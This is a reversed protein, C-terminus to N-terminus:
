GSCAEDADGLRDVDIGATVPDDPAFGFGEMCTWYASNESSGRSSLTANAVIGGVGLAVIALAGLLIWIRKM